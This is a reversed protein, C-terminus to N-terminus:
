KYAQLGSQLWSIFKKADSDYGFGKVVEEEKNDLIVYYPQTNRNFRSIQLDTWKNGITRVKRGTAESVYQENEPLKKKLDVFLSVVVFDDLFM